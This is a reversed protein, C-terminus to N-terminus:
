RWCRGMVCGARQKEMIDGDQRLFARVYPRLLPKMASLWPM